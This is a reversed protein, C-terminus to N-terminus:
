KPIYHINSPFSYRMCCSCRILLLLRNIQQWFRPTKRVITMNKVVQCVLFPILLYHIRSTETFPSLRLRYCRSPAYRPRRPPPPTRQPAAGPERPVLRWDGLCRGRSRGGRSRVSALGTVNLKTVGGAWSWRRKCGQASVHSDLWYGSSALVAGRM